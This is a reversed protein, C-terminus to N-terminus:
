RFVPVLECRPHRRHPPSHRPRQPPAPPQVPMRAAAEAARSWLAASQDSEIPGLPAIPASLEADLGQGWDRDQVPPAPAVEEHACSALIAAAVSLFLIPKSM